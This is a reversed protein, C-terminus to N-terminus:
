QFDLTVQEVEMVERIETVIKYGAPVKPIAIWNMDAWLRQCTGKQRVTIIYKFWKKEDDRIVEKDFVPSHCGSAIVYRGVLTQTLFNIEPPKQTNCHIEANIFDLYEQRTTIMFDKEGYTIYFEFPCPISHDAEPPGLDEFSVSSVVDKKEATAAPLFCFICLISLFFFRKM